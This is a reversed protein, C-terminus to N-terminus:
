LNGRCKLLVNWQSSLEIADCLFHLNTFISSNPKENQFVKSFNNCSTVNRFISSRWLLKEVM